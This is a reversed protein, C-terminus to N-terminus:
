AARTIRADLKAARMRAAHPSVAPGGPSEAPGIVLPGPVTLLLETPPSVDDVLVVPSEPALEFDQM